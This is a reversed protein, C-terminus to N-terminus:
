EAPGTQVAVPFPSSISALAEKTASRRAMAM